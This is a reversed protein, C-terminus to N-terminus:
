TTLANCKYILVSICLDSTRSPCDAFEKQMKVMMLGEPNEKADKQKERETSTIKNAL